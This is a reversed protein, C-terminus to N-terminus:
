GFSTRALWFDLLDRDGFVETREAPPRRGYVLLLLDTLPGRVAVTAKEHARRWPLGGGLHRLLQAVNWGPCTPVPGALDAGDTAARLLDSQAAIQACLREYTLRPGRDM